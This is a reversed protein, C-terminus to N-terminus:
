KILDSQAIIIQAVRHATTGDSLKELQLKGVEQLLRNAKEVKQEMSIEEMFESEFAICVGTARHYMELIKKYGITQANRVQEIAHLVTAHNFGALKGIQTLTLNTRDRLVTYTVARCDIYERKRTTSSGFVDQFEFGCGAVVAKMIRLGLNEQSTM